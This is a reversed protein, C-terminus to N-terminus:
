RRGHTLYPQCAQLTSLSQIPQASLHFLGVATVLEMEELITLFRSERLQRLFHIWWQCGIDYIVLGSPLGKTNYNLANCISYNINMQWNDSSKLIGIQHVIM